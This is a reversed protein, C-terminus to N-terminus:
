PMPLSLGGDRRIEATSQELEDDIPEVRGGLHKALFAEVVANFAMNNTPKAFGHGEDPFVVYTVPLEHKEMAAVIQDSESVKVRPDNAGQGILLPRRIQDVYTLPSIQDLYEAEDLSGVRTEFMAVLPKWYPPITELLTRVHSPGVIDVGCAFLEPDRTLAALTAYGGYSGGMIAVQDAKAIGQDVAWAVADNLDDQMKAYWERNGANLFSKGFGTSGRFNVSLVAYGRNALWQHYPNYGWSDRAWPGGHVLLVMPFPKSGRPHSLYAPLVLGDRATIELASMPVLPQSELEPRSSFLFEGTRDDRRWLWYRVPGADNWYAVIWLRDNLTRSLVEFSGRDLQELERMDEAISPDLVSWEKKLYTSAAAEIVHTTPHAMIDSVDAKDDAFIVRSENSGGRKPEVAVLAATNRGISEFLFMTRGDLSFGAPGTTLGDEMSVRRLEYWPAEAADRVEILQGGDPLMRVRGRIVGDDDPLMATFGQDNEFVLETEGTRTDVQHIDMLAPNRANMRVLITDPRRHNRDVISAAVNEHPTLDRAEGGDLGVAFVHTNEDGNADQTYLIQESNMAWDYNAIPRDTSRTVPRADGGEIPRIWINLVGDLEARYSLWRGDPSLQVGSRAPNGFLIERPILSVDTSLERVSEPDGSNSGPTTEARDSPRSAAPSPSPDGQAEPGGQCSTMIAGMGILCALASTVRRIRHHPNM